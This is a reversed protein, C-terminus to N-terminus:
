FDIMLTRRRRAKKTAENSANPPAALAFGFATLFGTALFGTALFTTFFTTALFAGFFTTLFATTLFATGLFAGTTFRENEDPPTSFSTPTVGGSPRNSGSPKRLRPGSAYRRYWSISILCPRRLIAAQRPTMTVSAPRRRGPVGDGEVM